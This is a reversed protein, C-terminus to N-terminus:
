HRSTGIPCRAKRRAPLLFFNRLFGRLRVCRVCTPTFPLLTHSPQNCQCAYRSRGAVGSREAATTATRVKAPSASFIDTVRATSPAPVNSM